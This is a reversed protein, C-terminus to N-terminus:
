ANTGVPRHGPQPAPTSRRLHNLSVVHLTIALPVATTPILVLPLLAIAQTSPTVDLLRTPGLGALFGLSVAVVLDVIGLINFWVARARGAGASLRRAILPASLGIAIDGIGAPVAFVAPLQGLLWMILFAAGAVRFLHPWALRAATAPQAIIKKALPLRSALLLAALTGAFAVGIWPRLATPDQRFVGDAALLGAAIIWGTWVVAAFVVIRTATPRSLGADLASRYV